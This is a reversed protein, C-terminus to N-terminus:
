AVTRNGPQVDGKAEHLQREADEAHRDRGNVSGSTERLAASPLVRSNRPARACAIRSTMSSVIGEAIPNIM